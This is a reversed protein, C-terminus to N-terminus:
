AEYNLYEFDEKYLNYVIDKTKQNYYDKYDKKRSITKSHNYKVDINIEKLDNSFSELRIIHNVIYNDIKCFNIQPAFHNVSFGQKNNAEIHSELHKLIFNEFTFKKNKGNYYYCSVLRDYPNRVTAITKYNELEIGLEKKYFRLDAHQLFFNYKKSLGFMLDLDEKKAELKLDNLYLDRLTHEISTGGTKGPHLFIIKKSELKVINRKAPDNQRQKKSM